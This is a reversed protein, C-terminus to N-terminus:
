PYCWEIRFPAYVSRMVVVTHTEAQHPLSLKPDILRNLGTEGITSSGSVLDSSASMATREGSEDIFPVCIRRDQMLQNYLLM